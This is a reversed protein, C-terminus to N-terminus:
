NQTTAEFKQVEVRSMPKFSEPKSTMWGIACLVIGFSLGQHFFMPSKTETTCALTRCDRARKTLGGTVYNYSVQLLGGYNLGRLKIDMGEIM